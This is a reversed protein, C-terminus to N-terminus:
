FKWNEAAKKGFNIPPMTPCANAKGHPEKTKSKSLDLPKGKEPEAFDSYVVDRLTAREWLGRSSGSTIKANGAAVEAAGGMRCAGAVLLMLIVATRKRGVDRSDPSHRLRSM